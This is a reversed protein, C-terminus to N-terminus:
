KDSTVARIGDESLVARARKRQAINALHLTRVAQHGIEITANPQTRSRV